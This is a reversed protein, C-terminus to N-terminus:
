GKAHMSMQLIREESAETRDLSGVITRERMIIIRSCLGLLEPLESSIVIVGVGAGALARLEDHIEGKAGVDIGATPEDVIVLRPTRALWRALLVKQRNGGSLTDVDHHIDAYKVRFRQALAITRRTEHTRDILGWHLDEELTPLSINERISRQLFLGLRNRDETLFALGARIADAPTRPHFPAGDLTVAGSTRKDAGFLCRALESRGSGALGAIGLVEGEHLTFSCASIVDSSLADVRLIERAPAPAVSPAPAPIDRGVMMRILTGRDAGSAPLTGIKKGDRLVTIRAGIEAIEELRHSIYIFSIGESSLRRILAFLTATERETLAATPEDMIVVRAKRSLAKAIEVMQHQAPALERAPLQPDVSQGVQALAALAESRMAPRDLLRLGPRLPERGLLINEAVSLEPVLNSEQFITAIGARLADHPSTFHVERDDLTVSGRDQALAGSLIKILTSKGAGNEGVLCHVEGPELDFDVADLAQVGPFSKSLRVTSLLPM